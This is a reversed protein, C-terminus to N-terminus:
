DENSKRDHDEASKLALEGNRGSIFAIVLSALGATGLVGGTIQGALHPSILIVVGGMLISVLCITFGLYQGRRREHRELLLDHRRAELSAAELEQRHRAEREAMSLIRDASGPCAKEWGAVISPPPIPGSYQAEIEM